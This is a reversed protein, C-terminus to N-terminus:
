GRWCMCKISNTVLFLYQYFNPVKVGHWSFTHFEPFNWQFDCTKWPHGLLMYGSWKESPCPLVNIKLFFPDLLLYLFPKVQFQMLFKSMRNSASPFPGSPRDHTLHLIHEIIPAVEGKNAGGLQEKVHSNEQFSKFVLYTHSTVSLIFFQDRTSETFFEKRFILFYLLLLIAIFAHIAM